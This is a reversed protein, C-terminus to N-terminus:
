APEEEVAAELLDFARDIEQHSGMLVLCDGGALSLDPEPNLHSTGDRVVAIVTAGSRRRLDLERLSRGPVASEADLLYLDTTGAALADMVAQSVTRDLSPARLMRYGEGRLVRTQARIVNRPVHYRDLVRTFVEIASEFAEAVVQDAGAALLSEIDRMLRTRVIIQARPALRRAHGVGLQLATPDSLAFVVVNARDIGAHQLIEERAADGYLMPQGESLGRRVRDGSLEVVVYQIGAERLVRALLQGGEGFGVVIVHDRKKEIEAGAADPRRKSPLARGLWVSLPRSLAVVGPTLLLTVVAAALIMQFQDGGLLGNAFGVEMLVFSFEGIQALAFASLLVTRVPYGLVAAAIGATLIKLLVVGTAVVLVLGPRAALWDLDLLMGISVFFVGSFLDRFPAIDAVIQHSYLSGSLVVGALFAGLALSFGLAHTLWGLGLCLALSGLLLVERVGSRVVAEMVLPLLRRGLLFVAALAAAAGALRLLLDAVSFSLSGSLLPTLAIMPVILFDQCLLIALAIRGHPADIERRASLLKLVLATSSLAVVWGIFLARPWALGLGVTVATVAASTLSVQVVGGILFARRLRRLRDASIELGITFLLLAVGVEAFLEVEDLESILGLGHPGIFMGTVLFGVIPPVRFRASAAVVFVASALLVVVERLFVDLTV